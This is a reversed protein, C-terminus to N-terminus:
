PPPACELLRNAQVANVLASAGMDRIFNESLDLLTLSSNKCLATALAEAGEDSIINNTLTLELL